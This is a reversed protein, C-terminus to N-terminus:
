RWVLGGQFNIFKFLCLVFNFFFIELDVFNRKSQGLIQDFRGVNQIQFLSVSFDFCGLDQYVLRLVFLVM